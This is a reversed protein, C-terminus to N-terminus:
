VLGSDSFNNIFYQAPDILQPPDNDSKPSCHSCRPFSLTSNGPWIFNSIYIIYDVKYWNWPNWYIRADERSIEGTQLGQFLWSDRPEASFLWCSAKRCSPLNVVSHRRRPWLLGPFRPIATLPKWWRWSSLFLIRQHLVGGAITSPQKLNYTNRM